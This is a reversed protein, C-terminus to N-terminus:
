KPGSIAKMQALAKDMCLLPGNMIIEIWCPSSALEQRNYGAVWGGVFSIQITCLAYRFEHVVERGQKVIEALRRVFEQHNFIQLSGGPPIRCIAMPDVHNAYNCTRSRVFLPRDSLCKAFVEGGEYTLHVGKGIQRRIIETAAIRKVNSILGLSFGEANECPNPYGYVVVHSQTADFIEGVHHNHEFYMIDCWHPMEVYRVKIMVGESTAMTLGSEGNATAISTGNAGYATAMTMGSDGDATPMTLGSKEGESSNSPLLRSYEMARLSRPFMSGSLHHPLLLNVNNHCHLVGLTTNTSM